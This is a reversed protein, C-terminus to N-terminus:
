STSTTTRDRHPPHSRCSRRCQRSLRHWPSVARRADPARGARTRCADPADPARASGNRGPARAVGAGSDQSVLPFCRVREAAGEATEGHPPWQQTIRQTPAITGADSAKPSFWLWRLSSHVKATIEISLPLKCLSCPRNAVAGKEAAALFNSLVSFRWQRRRLFLVNAMVEM